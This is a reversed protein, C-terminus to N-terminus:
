ANVKQNSNRRYIGSALFNSSYTGVIDGIECFRNESGMEKM